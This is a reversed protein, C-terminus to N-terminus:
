LNGRLKEALLFQLIENALEDLGADLADSSLKRLKNLIEDKDDSIVCGVDILNKRANKILEESTLTHYGYGSPDPMIITHHTETNSECYDKAQKLGCQTLIRLNKIATILGGNNYTTPWKIKIKNSHAMNIIKTCGTESM